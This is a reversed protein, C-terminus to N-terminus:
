DAPSQVKQSAASRPRSLSKVGRGAVPDAPNIVLARRFAIRAQDPEDAGMLAIALSDQLEADPPSKEIAKQYVGAALSWYHRQTLIRGDNLLDERGISCAPPPLEAGSEGLLFRFMTIAAASRPNTRLTYTALTWDDRWHRLQVVSLGALGCLLAVCGLRAVTNLLRAPQAVESVKNSPSTRSSPLLLALGIAPGLMAMYAYRDAVTSYAQFTFPVIGITPLLGFVFVAYASPLWPLKKRLTWAVAFAAVPILCVLPAEPQSLVWSPTRGYDMVLGFPAIVKGLYFAIADLPVLTRSMAGPVFVTTAPSSLENLWVVIPTVVLWAGLPVAVQRFTRGRLGIEIAAVMLPLCVATPKTLLALLFAISAPVYHRWAGRRVSFDEGQARDSFALYQWAAAFAIAASLPTYVSWANAVAEVQIPHVAFLVAGFFAPWRAPTLRRLIVFVMVSSAAHAILNAAYFYAPNLPSDAGSAARSMAALVGWLTYTVPVFFTNRPPPVWYRVLHGLRPPNYDPNTLISARDDWSEIFRHGLVPYFVALTLLGLLVGARVDRLKTRREAM